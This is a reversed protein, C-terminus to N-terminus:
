RAPWNELEPFPRDFKLKLRIFGAGDTVRLPWNVSWTTPDIRQTSSAKHLLAIAGWEGVEYPSTKSDPLNAQQVLLLTLRQDVTPAGLKQDELESTRVSGAARTAVLKMDRWAGSERWADQAKTSEEAKMLSIICEGPTLEDGLIARSVRALTSARGAFTQWAPSDGGSVKPMAAAALDQAILTLATDAQRLQEPKMMVTSSKALPFGL